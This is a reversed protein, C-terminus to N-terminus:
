GLLFLQAFLLILPSLRLHQCLLPLLLHLRLTSSNIHAGQAFSFKLILILHVIMRFVRFDMFISKSSHILLGYSVSKTNKLVNKHFRHKSKDSNIPKLIFVFLIWSERTKKLITIGTKWNKKNYCNQSITISASWM